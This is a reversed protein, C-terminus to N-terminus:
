ITLLGDPRAVADAYVSMSTEGGKARHLAMTTAVAADIKGISKSKHFSQNNNADARTVVNAFHRRMIPHASHRLKGALIIEQATEVAPSMTKWGQSFAVVPLGEDSLEAMTDSLKYPDYALERLDFTKAIERIKDAIARKDIVNGDTLILLGSDAWEQYPVGDQEQKKAINEEPLFGWGFAAFTGDDEPFVISLFTMDSVLSYDLGAWCPRGEYDEIDLHDAGAADWVAMELWPSLAADAWRGLIFREFDARAQPLNVAQAAMTRLGPLDPFGYKLGPNSLHWAKEDRWDREPPVEFILPLFTEDEIAGTAVDRAYKEVEWAIGDQGSGATTTIIHLTNPIKVLGSTLARWLERNHTWVHLEDSYVVQYTLGHKGEGDASIAQFQSGSKPHSITFVPAERKETAASLRASMGIIGAAEEWQIKAQARDSAAAIIKGGQVREPGFLHLCGLAGVLSTKRGGRGMRLYVTRIKRTGDPHCDGYIKSIIRCQFDYLQLAKKPATSKPHKLKGLFELARAAYRFPDPLPESSYLWAPPNVAKSM